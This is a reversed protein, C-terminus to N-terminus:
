RRYAEIMYHDACSALLAVNQASSELRSLAALVRPSHNLWNAAYSPPLICGLPSVRKVIFHAGLARSLQRPTPYQVTLGRWKVGGRRFRRFAKDARGRTLYWIWEWPVHKGMVVWLLTAQSKLLSAISGILSEFDRACNVAGFNSFVGDFKRGQLASAVEEMPVRHFEIRGALGLTNAKRKAVAIMEDAADTAVVDVSRAALRVADEGTGCGLELIKQGPLFLYDMRAWVMKRLVVGLPTHTFEADYKAAYPDFPADM